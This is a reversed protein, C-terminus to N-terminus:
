KREKERKVDDENEETKDGERCCERADELIGDHGETIQLVKKDACRSTCYTQSGRERKRKERGFHKRNNQTEKINISIATALSNGLPSILAAAKETKKQNYQKM